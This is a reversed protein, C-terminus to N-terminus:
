KETRRPLKPFDYQKLTEQYWYSTYDKTYIKRVIGYSTNSKEAIDNLSFVGAMIMDCIDLVKKRTEPDPAFPKVGWQKKLAIYSDDCQILKQVRKVSVGTFKSIEEKSFRGYSALRFIENIEKDKNLANPHAEGRPLNERNWHGPKVWKLNNISVNMTNGDIFTVTTEEEGHPIFAQALLRHLAIGKKNAVYVYQYTKQRKAGCSYKYIQLEKGNVFVKGNDHVIVEIGNVIMTKEM